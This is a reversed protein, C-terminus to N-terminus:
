RLIKVSTSSRRISVEYYWSNVTKVEGVLRKHLDIATPRKEKAEKAQIGVDLGWNWAHRSVVAQGSALTKQKNNLNIKTQFSKPM